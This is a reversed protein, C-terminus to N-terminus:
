MNAFPNKLERTLENYNKRNERYMTDWQDFAQHLNKILEGNTAIKTMGQLYVVRNIANLPDFSGMTGYNLELTTEGKYHWNSYFFEFSHGFLMTNPYTGEPDRLGIEVGSTRPRVVWDGDTLHPMIMETIGKVWMEDTDEFAQEAAAIRKELSAKRAAGEDTLWYENIKMRLEFDAILNKIRDIENILDNCKWTVWYNNECKKRPSFGDHGEIMANYKEILENVEAFLKEKRTM